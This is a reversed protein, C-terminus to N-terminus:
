NAQRCSGVGYPPTHFSGNALDDQLIDTVFLREAMGQSGQVNATVRVKYALWTGFRQAYEVKIILVGSANTTTITPNDYSILLDSKRPELTAQGNSDTSGNKNEGPDVNGNRNSDENPCWVRQQQAAPVTTDSPYATNLGSPVVTLAPVANGFADLYPYAFLGKGYHTLDVSIDVPAGAVARGASDAVTVAFRKIYTLTGSGKELINDDGVSVSLAQGAVTLTATVSNPCETTNIFDTAKYCAKVTVGNTPSSNQGAIYESTVVGGADTFLTTTGSSISAGVAPLGVTTDVFRVRVNQVPQNQPDLFLFRLTSKNASTGPPNVALVNPSASLSPNSGAPIIATPITSSFVQLQYDASTVGNATANVSYFGASTPAAFSTTVQGSTSTTATVGNLATVTGGFTVPVNPIPNGSSDVVTASLVVPQGPAPANPTAQLTIKTGTVRVATEKTQGNVTVTLTIDRDRKDAGTGLTGTYTGSANTTAGSPVFVGGQDVSVTVPANPVVNNNADLAVVTLVSTDSGSNTLTNKSMFLAFDAVQPTPNPNSPNVGPSGGGGGCAVLAAAALVGAWMKMFRIM